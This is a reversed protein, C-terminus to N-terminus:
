RSPTNQGHRLKRLRVRPVDSLCVNRLREGQAIRRVRTAHPTPRDDSNLPRPSPRGATRTLPAPRACRPRSKDISCIEVCAQIQREEERGYALQYDATQPKEPSNAPTATAPRPNTSDRDAKTSATAACPQRRPQARTPHHSKFFNFGAHM